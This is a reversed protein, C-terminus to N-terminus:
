QELINRASYAIIYWICIAIHYYVWIWLAIKLNEWINEISFEEGFHKVLNKNIRNKLDLWNLIEDIVPSGSNPM